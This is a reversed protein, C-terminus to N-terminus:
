ELYQFIEGKIQKEFLFREMEGKITPVYKLFRM